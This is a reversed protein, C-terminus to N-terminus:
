VKQTEKKQAKLAEIQYKSWGIKYGLQRQIEYILPVQVTMVKMEEALRHYVWMPNRGLERAIRLLDGIPGPEIRGAKLGAVALDTARGIGDQVERREEPALNNFKVPAKIEKLKADAIVELEERGESLEGSENKQCGKRCAPNMCIMYDNFPCSPVFFEEPTKKKKQRPRGEFNWQVDDLFFLPIGPYEPLQHYKVLNVHDFFVADIKGPFTRLLRGVKQFYINRSQTPRLSAGYELNPIDVGYIVLDCNCVGDIKEQELALLANERDKKPMNGWVPIFNFGADNFHRATEKASKVSRCFILAPKNPNQGPQPDPRRGHKQYYKVVDGYVKRKELFEDLEVEDIEGARWHLTELGAIPPAFYRLKALFDREVMWPISPGYVIDGYIGGINKEYVETSFDLENSDENLIVRKRTPLKTELFEEREIRVWNEKLGTGDTREPTATFGIVRTSKPMIDFLKQQFDFNLHAEDIIVLDPWNKIRDWRRDLTQKSVVHVDFARSESMGSSIFAHQVGHKTLKKGAQKRLEDRPVIIWVRNKRGTKKNSEMVMNVINSFIETKGGGTVLQVMFARHKRIGERAAPVLDGQYDRLQM